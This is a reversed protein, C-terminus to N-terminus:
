TSLQVVAACNQRSDKSTGPGCAVAASCSALQCSQYRSSALQSSQANLSSSAGGSASRKPMRRGVYNVRGVLGARHCSYGGLASALRPYPREALTPVTLLNARPGVALGDRRSRAHGAQSGARRGCVSYGSRPPCRGVDFAQAVDPEPPTATGRLGESSSTTPSCHRGTGGPQSCQDTSSQTYGNRRRRSPRVRPVRIYPGRWITKRRNLSPYWQRVKHMQVVWRHSGDTRASRSAGQPPPPTAYGCFRFTGRVPSLAVGRRYVTPPGASTSANPPM